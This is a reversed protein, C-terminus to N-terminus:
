EVPMLRAYGFDHDFARCWIVVTNYKKIDVDVPIEYNQNGKNGKLAGLSVGDGSPSNEQALVVFLDPGRSTAFDELRVYRNKGDDLVFARGSTQVTEDADFFSGEYRVSPKEQEPPQEPEKTQEKQPDQPADNEGVPKTVRVETQEVQEKVPQTTQQKEGNPKPPNKPADPENTSNHKETRDTNQGAHENTKKPEDPKSVDAKEEDKKPALPQTTDKRSVQPARAERQPVDANNEVIKDSMAVNQKQLVRDRQVSGIDMPLPEDVVRDFV